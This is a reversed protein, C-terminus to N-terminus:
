AAKDEVENALMTIKVARVFVSHLKKISYNNKNEKLEELVKKLYVEAQWLDHEIDKM